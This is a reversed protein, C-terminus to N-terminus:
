RPTAGSSRFRPWICSSVLRRAPAVDSAPQTLNAVHMSSVGDVPEVPLRQVLGHVEHGASALLPALYRGTFGDVGTVLVTEM